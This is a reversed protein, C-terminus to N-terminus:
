FVEIFDDRDPHPAKSLAIKWFLWGTFLGVTLLIALFLASHPM